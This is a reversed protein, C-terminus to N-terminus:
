ATAAGFLSRPDVRTCDNSAAFHQWSDGNPGCKASYECTVATPLTVLCTQTKISMHVVARYTKRYRM